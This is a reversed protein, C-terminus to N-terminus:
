RSLKLRWGSADVHVFGRGALETLAADVEARGLGAAVAIEAGDASAFLPLAELVARHVPDLTDVPRVPDSKRPALNTGVPSVHELVEDVDTVVVPEPQRLLEHVGSSARSTVPGPVGMVPRSLELAWRASSLAGSRLAAEVVVIGSGMAAILRNRTLFRSKIPKCGPGAEAM